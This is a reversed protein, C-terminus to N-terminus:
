RPDDEKKLRGLRGCGKLAIVYIATSLGAGISAEAIAVDPAQLIYFEVSLVLSLGGLAIVSSLMDRSWIAYFGSVVLLALVALHLLEASM